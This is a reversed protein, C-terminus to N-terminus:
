GIAEATALARQRIRGITGLLHATVSERREYPLFHGAGRFVVVSSDPLREGIRHAHTPSTLFDRTGALVTVELDQFAELARYRHHQLISGGLAAVVRPDAQAGQQVVRNLDRRRPHKGFAGRAGQRVLFLPRSPMKIRSGLRLAFRMVAETGPIRRVAGMLEGASSAALMVGEVRQAVLQPHREAVATLTFGGLSHGGLVVPGTPALATIVSALDDALQEITAGNVRDSLGHGRHDYAIVRVTPDAAVLSEAVDEWIRHSLTWGHALVVTLEATPAGWEAVQLNVGDAMPLRFERYPVTPM